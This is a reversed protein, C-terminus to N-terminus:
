IKEIRDTVRGAIRREKKKDDDDLIKQWIENAKNIEDEDKVRYQEYWQVGRSPNKYIVAGKRKKKIEDKFPIRYIREVIKRDNSFCFFIMDEYDKRWEGELTGIVWVGYKSSYIKGRIQYLMKTVPDQCDIETTYNDYKKNLDVYGYLECALDITRDGKTSEDDPDRNGTRCDAMLKILNNTSNLDYRQWHKRWHNACIWEGIGKGDKDKERCANGPYLLSTETIRNEERCRPCINTDNYKGNRYPKTGPKNKRKEIELGILEEKSPNKNIINGSEDVIVWRPKEGISSIRWAKNRRKSDKDINNSSYYGPYNKKYYDNSYCNRCVWNGTWINKVYEKYRHGSKTEENCKICRDITM